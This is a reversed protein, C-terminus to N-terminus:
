WVGPVFRFRVRDAYAAYGALSQRLLREEQVARWGVAVVFVPVAALAWWSGLLLPVGLLYLIAFGYMPHRVFRYPGSTVTVQGREAQIRVQPAAFSNARFVRSVGAMCVAILVAGLVQMWVPVASWAFRRADLGALVLWSVFVVGACCLFVRDWLGQGPQFRASLRAELLAPDYRKLWAGFGFAIVANEALFAWAQPWAWDGGAGFLLVAMVVLWLSTQIM